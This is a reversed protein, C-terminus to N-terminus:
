LTIRFVKGFIEVDALITLTNPSIMVELAELANEISISVPVNEILREQGAELNLDNINADARGIYNGRQSYFYLAKISIKRGPVNLALDTPNNLSFDMLFDIAGDDSSFDKLKLIVIKLHEMVKQANNYKNRGYMIAAAAAVGGFLLIKNM